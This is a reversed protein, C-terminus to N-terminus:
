GSRKGVQLCFLSWFSCALGCVDIQLPLPFAFVCFIVPIWVCWNAILNPLYVKTGFREPWERRVRSWSFDRGVWFFFVANAPAVVLVTWVFQDVATKVLLTSFSADDGFWGALLKFVKCVGIGFTGGWLIQALITLLPRPPRISRFSCLFLGPLLGCFFGQSLFASWWGWRCHWEAVAALADRLGASLYYAAVLGVALAQLILMPVVNARASELGIRLPQALKM